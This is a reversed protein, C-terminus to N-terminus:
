VTDNNRAAIRKIESLSVEPRFKVLVEPERETVTRPLAVPKPTSRTATNERFVNIKSRLQRIQGLIAAMTILVIAVTIHIWINKRNM